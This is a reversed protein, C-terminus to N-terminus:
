DFNVRNVVMAGTSGGLGRVNILINDVRKRRPHGRVFDLDCDPDLSDCNATPAIQGDRITFACSAVQFPGGASLPNGTVGKISNIPILSAREGFAERIYRVEAADLTPHGPGYASIYDIDESRRSANALSLQIAPLLGSGPQDQNVDRTRAYGSIELYPRCGRAEARELSELVFVGAGESIVGTDRDRDFPRSARAPDENRSSALGSAIFAAFSLKTIPADAGGAVALDTEGCQIMEAALAIADLGSPCASSLTSAHAKGGIRDAITNAAAQPSLASLATPSVRYQGGNNARVFGREIIDMASTSVGIVVPILSPLDMQDLALKADALAMKTAAYAFQTHRAMRSPKLSPEIFQSPDFGKVEGAIQSDLETPDFLTIRRIGSDGNLLSNWFAEKGIGNPAM